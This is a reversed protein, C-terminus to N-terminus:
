WQTWTRSFTFKQNLDAFKPFFGFCNSTHIPIYICQYHLSPKTAVSREPTRRESCHLVPRAEASCLDLVHRADTANADSILWCNTENLRIISEYIKFHLWYQNAIIASKHQSKWLLTNYETIIRQLQRLRVLLAALPWLPQLNPWIWDSM